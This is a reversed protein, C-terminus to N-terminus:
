WWRRSALSVNGSAQALRRLRMPRAHKRLVELHEAFHQPTVFLVPDSGVEAVGHYMLILAKCDFRSRTARAAQRWRNLGRTKMASGKKRCRVTILVEYDPDCHDLEEQQLEEVALGHLFAVATLVNGYTQVRVDAAAFVEEFLRRASPEHIGLVLLRVM